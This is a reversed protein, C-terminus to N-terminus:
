GCLVPLVSPHSDAKETDWWLGRLVMSPADQLLTGLVRRETHGSNVVLSPGLIGSSLAGLVCVRSHAVLRRCPQASYKVLMTEMKRPREGQKSDKVRAAEREKESM